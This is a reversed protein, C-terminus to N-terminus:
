KVDASLLEIYSKEGTLFVYMPDGAAAATASSMTYTYEVGDAGIIVGNVAVDSGTRTITLTVDADMMMALFAAWDAGWSGEVADPMGGEAPFAWGFSDGRLVGYEVYGEYNDPSALLDATVPSNTFALVYNDWNNLGSGYNNFHLTVEGGDKLEYGDTTSTWFGNDCNPNGVVAIASDDITTVVQAVPDPEIVAPAEVVSQVSPDGLDYLAKVQADTLAYDYFYIDDFFGKYITDWFNIGLFAEFGGYSADMLDPIIGGYADQSADFKMEGDLYFYVGNREMGDEAYTYINGTAVVTVMTWEGKGHVADDTAYVWPQNTVNDLSSTKNWLVPFIDVSGAGWETKCFNAWNSVVTRPQTTNSWEMNSGMALTPQYTSLRDANIWFSITYTQTDLAEVPLQLGFNGDIYVAKGVPGDAYQVNIPQEVGDRDVYTDSEVVDYTAATAASDPHPVQIVTKVGEDENDFTFHYVPDGTKEEVVFSAPPAAEATSAEAAPSSAEAGGETAADSGCAALMAATLVGCCLLALIKKKMLYGGEKKPFGPNERTM